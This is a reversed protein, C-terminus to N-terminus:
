CTCIIYEFFYWLGRAPEKVEDSNIPLIIRSNLIIIIESEHSFRAWFPEAWFYRASSSIAEEAQGEMKRPNFQKHNM